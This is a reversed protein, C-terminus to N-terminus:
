EPHHPHKRGALVDGDLGHWSSGPCIARHAPRRRSLDVASISAPQVIKGPLTPWHGNLDGSTTKVAGIAPTGALCERFAQCIHRARGTTPGPPQSIELMIKAQREAAFGAGAQCGPDRRRCARVGQESKGDGAMRQLSRWCWADKTDVVPGPPTTTAVAGHQHAEFAIVDDIEQGITFGGGNSGPQPITWADLDDSTVAGAGISIANALTRWTRDLDSISPVQEAIEPLGDLGKRIPVTGSGTPGGLVDPHM